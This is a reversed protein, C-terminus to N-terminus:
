HSDHGKKKVQQELMPCYALSHTDLWKNEGYGFLPTITKEKRRSVGGDM